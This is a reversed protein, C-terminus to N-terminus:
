VGGGGIGIPIKFKEPEFNLKKFFLVLADFHKSCLYIDGMSRTQIKNVPLDECDKKTFFKYACKKQM